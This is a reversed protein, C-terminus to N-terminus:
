SHVLVPKIVEKKMDDLARAVDEAKYFKVFQDFAFKGERYWQIMKPVHEKALCDGLYNTEIRKTDGFFDQYDFPIISSPNTLPIGIQILKGRKSLAKIQANILSLVGTTDLAFNIKGDPALAKLEGALKEAYDEAKIDLHSTDFVHTAGLKKAVELRSPVRDVAIVGRCGSLVAAMIAGLGVAGLGVVVVVDNPKASCSNVVAGSGTMLGCGLPSFLKLEEDDKILGKVNVISKEDVMSLSAYSSQGFFKGGVEKGERDRWVKDVCGINEPAFNQCYTACDHECLDCKGCYTYSLLVPDGVAVSTISSGVAQVYGSGEHGLVVPYSMYPSPLGGVHIDTHCIGVALMKVLVENPGPQTRSLTITEHRLDPKGFEIPPHAVVATCTATSTSSM